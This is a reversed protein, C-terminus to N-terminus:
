KNYYKQLLLEADDKDKQTIPSSSTQKLIGSREFIILPPEETGSRGNQIKSDNYDVVANYGMSKLESFYESRLKSNNMVAKQYDIFAADLAEPISLNKLNNVMSNVKNEYIVKYRKKDENSYYNYLEDAIQKPNKDQVKNLFQNVMAAYSPAVLDSTLKFKCKNGYSFKGTDSDFSATWWLGDEGAEAVYKANDLENYSIYAHGANTEKAEKSIRQVETGKKLRLENNKYATIGTTYKAHGQLRGFLHQYWKMGKVGHHELYDREKVIM